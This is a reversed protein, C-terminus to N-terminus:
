RVPLSTRESTEETESLSSTLHLWMHVTHSPGFGLFVRKREKIM